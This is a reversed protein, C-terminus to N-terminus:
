LTLKNIIILVFFLFANYSIHQVTAIRENCMLNVSMKANTKTSSGVLAVFAQRTTNKKIKYQQELFSERIEYM